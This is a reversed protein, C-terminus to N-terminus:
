WSESEIRRREYNTFRLDRSAASRGRVIVDHLRRTTPSYSTKLLLRLCSDCSTAKGLTRTPMKFTVDSRQAYLSIKKARRHPDGNKGMQGTQEERCTRRLLDSRRPDINPVTAGIMNRGTLACKELRKTGQLERPKTNRRGHRDLCDKRIRRAEDTTKKLRVPQKNSTVSSLNMTSPQSLKQTDEDWRGMQSETIVGHQTIPLHYVPPQCPYGECAPCQIM